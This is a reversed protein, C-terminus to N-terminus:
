SKVSGGGEVFMVVVKLRLRLRREWCVVWCDDVFMVAVKLRLRMKWCDVGCYKELKEKVESVV